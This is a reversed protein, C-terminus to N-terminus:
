TLMPPMGIAEVVPLASGSPVVLPRGAVASATTTPPPV